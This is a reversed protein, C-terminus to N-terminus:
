SLSALIAGAFFVLTIVLLVHPSAMARGIEKWSFDDAKDNLAGEHRMRALLREKESPSLFSATEISRPLLFFSVLGFLTSFIGELFFLWAWGPKGGIGDMKVIAFALLGGFAGSLTAASFFMAQLTSVVGWLTLMTPLVRDAGAARLILNVPLEAAIYPVLTVTLATSYQVNSLKLDTQLGAIRANGINTRDLYALLYLMTLVPMLRIDMKFLTSQSVSFDDTLHESADSGATKEEIALAAQDIEKM